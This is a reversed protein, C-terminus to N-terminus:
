RRAELDVGGRGGRTVQEVEVVRRHGEGLAEVNQRGQQVGLRAPRYRQAGAVSAHVGRDVGVVQGVGVIHFHQGAAHQQSLFQRKRLGEIPLHIGTHSVRTQTHTHVHTHTRARARSAHCDTQRHTPPLHHAPPWATRM